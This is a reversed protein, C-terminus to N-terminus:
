RWEVLHFYEGGVFYDGLASEPIKDSKQLIHLFCMTLDDGTVLDVLALRELYFVKGDPQSVVRSATGVVHVSLVSIQSGFSCDSLAITVHSGLVSSASVGDLDHLHLRDSGALASSGVDHLKV